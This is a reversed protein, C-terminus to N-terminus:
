WIDTNYVYNHFFCTHHIVIVINYLLIKISIHRINCTLNEM